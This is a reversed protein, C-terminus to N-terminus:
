KQEHPEASTDVPTNQFLEAATKVKPTLAAVGVLEYAVAADITNFPPVILKLTTPFGDVSTVDVTKLTAGVPVYEVLTGDSQIHFPVCSM